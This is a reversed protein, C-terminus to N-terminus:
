RPTRWVGAGGAAGDEHEDLRSRLEQADPFSTQAGFGEVALAGVAAAARVAEVLGAGRALTAALGGVFADGAGTTDVVRAHFAPQRVEPQGTRLLRAGRAGLTEIVAGGIETLLAPAGGPALLAAEHENPVLVDCAALVEADVRAAPAPNLVTRAGVRRASEFAAAVVETTVELNSVLVDGPGVRAAVRAAVDPPHLHHNAGAAIAILNEGSADVLIQAVGTPAEVAHVASTDVGAATLHRLALRAHDDHGVAAILMTPVGLRAAAVAQNAGKGGPHVSFDGGGVTEGPAPFRPVHTVLDVNVSGVVLVRHPPAGM